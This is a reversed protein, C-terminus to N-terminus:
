LSHAYNFSHAAEVYRALLTVAAEVDIASAMENVTHVYRMPVSLTIAPIGARARQLAGADTGGSPLLEMQFPINEQRAVDRLHRVLRPDSISSSDMVKIGVGKGLRTIAETEPAGPIDMALTGDLAIGIGPEIGFAATMAGRLGVEEQVTAVAFVDVRHPGLVRLAELMVYVGARDDLAKGIINDGVRELTRDLTVMDGVEILARAREASLGVDVFLDDVKPAKPTEGAQLHPPKGGGPMIVGRLAPGPADGGSPHVFVRQAVLTRADFSGVPHLRLFGDKDVHRVLFGIEDMHAAIMVRPVPTRGADGTGRKLGIANGLADTRVEDVLPRLADVVVHRIREEGSPVGPTESLRKLLDFDVAV